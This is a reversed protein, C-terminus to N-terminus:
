LPVVGEDLWLLVNPPNEGSSKFAEVIEKSSKYIQSFHFLIFTTQPNEKAIPRLKTWCIHGRDTARQEYNEEIFTCEIMVTKCGLILNMSQTDKFLIDSTDCIFALIPFQVPESVKIGKKAEDGIQKKSKDKYEDKLKQRTESIVYGCTPTSHYCRVAQIKILPHSPLNFESGHDIPMWSAHKDNDMIQNLQFPQQPKLEYENRLQYSSNVKIAYSSKVHTFLREIIQVPAVVMPKNVNGRMLTCLTNCHDWHGHTILITSPNNKYGHLGADLMLKLNAIVFGTHSRSRSAGRIIWGCPLTYQTMWPNTSICSNPYTSEESM